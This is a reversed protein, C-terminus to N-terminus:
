AVGKRDGQRGPKDRCHKSLVRHRRADTPQLLPVSSGPLREAIIRNGESTYHYEDLYADGNFNAFVDTLDVVVAGPVDLRTLAEQMRPWFTRFHPSAEGWMSVKKEETQTLLKGLHIIPQLGLLGLCGDDVAAQALLRSHRVFQDIYAPNVEDPSSHIGRPRGQLITPDLTLMQPRPGLLSDFRRYLASRMLLRELSFFPEPESTVPKALPIFPSPGTGGQWVPRWYASEEFAFRADNRGSLVILVDPRYAHLVHLYLNLEHFSTYYPVAANIVEYAGDPLSGNLIAEMHATIDQGDPVGWGFASSGGALIVRTRGSSKQLPVDSPSRFGNADVRVQGGWLDYTRSANLRFSCVENRALLGTHDLETTMRLPKTMEAWRWDLYAFLVEAGLLVVPTFLISIFFVRRRAPSGESWWALAKFLVAVGGVLVLFVKVRWSIPVALIFVAAGALLLYGARLCRCRTKM